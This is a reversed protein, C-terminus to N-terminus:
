TSTSNIYHQSLDLYDNKNGLLLCNNLLVWSRKPQYQFKMEEMKMQFITSIGIM